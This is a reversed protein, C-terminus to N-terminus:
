RTSLFYRRYEMPKQGTHKKFQTIFNSTDSFGCREAIEAVSLDTDRLYIKASNIRYSTLYNYPTTGIIRKFTRIFHYKSLPIEEIMDDLTMVDAYKKHIQNVVREVYEPYRGHNRKQENTLSDELLMNFVQHLGVSIRTANVMDSEGILCTLEQIKASLMEPNNINVPFIEDPFLMEFFVKVANGQMHIWLFEWLGRCSGYQHRKHCDIVVASGVPLEISANGSQVTGCGDLTYLLLYSDHEPRSVEYDFEAFFHGAETIYFPLALATQTPTSTLWISKDEIREKYKGM